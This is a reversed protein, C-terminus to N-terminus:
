PTNKPGLLLICIHVNLDLGPDLFKSFDSRCGIRDPDLFQDPCILKCYTCLLDPFVNKNLVVVSILIPLPPPPSSLFSIGINQRPFQRSLITIIIDGGGGGGGGM